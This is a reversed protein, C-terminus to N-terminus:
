TCFHAALRGGVTFLNRVLSVSGNLTDRLVVHHSGKCTSHCRYVLVKLPCRTWGGHVSPPLIGICTFFLRQMMVSHSVQRVSSCSTSHTLFTTLSLQASLVTADIPSGDKIGMWSVAVISAARLFHRHHSLSSSAFAAGAASGLRRWLTRPPPVGLSVRRTCLTTRFIRTASPTIHDVCHSSLSQTGVEPSPSVSSSVVCIASQRSCEKYWAFSAMVYPNHINISVHDSANVQLLNMKVSFCRYHIHFVVHRCSNPLECLAVM